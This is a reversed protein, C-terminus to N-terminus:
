ASLLRLLISLFLPLLMLIVGLTRFRKRLMQEREEWAVIASVTRGGVLILRGEEKPPKGRLRLYFYTCVSYIILFYLIWFVLYLGFQRAESREMAASGNM